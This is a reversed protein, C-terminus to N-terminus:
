GLQHRRCALGLPARRCLSCLSALSRLRPTLHSATTNLRCGTGAGTWGQQAAGCGHQQSGVAACPKDHSSSICSVRQLCEAQGGRLGEAGCGSAPQDASAAKLLANDVDRICVCM